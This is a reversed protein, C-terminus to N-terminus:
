AVAALRKAMASVPASESGSNASCALVMTL